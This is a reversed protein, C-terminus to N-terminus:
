PWKDVTNVIISVGTVRLVEKIILEIIEDKARNTILISSNGYRADMTRGDNYNFAALIRFSHGKVCGILEYRGIKSDAYRYIKMLYEFM